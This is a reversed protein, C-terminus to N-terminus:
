AIHRASRGTGLHRRGLLHVPPPEVLNVVDFPLSRTKLESVQALASGAVSLVITAAVICWVGVPYSSTPAAVVDIRFTACRGHGTDAHGILTPAAGAVASEEVTLGGVLRDERVRIAVSFPVVRISVSTVRRWEISPVVTAIAFPVLIGLDFAVPFLMWFSVAIAVTTAM